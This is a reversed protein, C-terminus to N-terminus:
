QEDINSVWYKNWEQDYFYINWSDKIIKQVKFYSKELVKVRKKEIDYKVILDWSENELNYNKKRETDNESIVWLYQTSNLPIFDTFLAFYEVKKTVVDYLFTWKQTVFAYNKDNKKVYLIPQPFYIEEVKKLVVNYIYKQNPTIILVTDLTHYVPQIFIDKKEFFPFTYLNETVGSNQYWLTLTTDNNKTFYLYGLTEIDFLAYANELVDKMRLEAIQNQTTQEQQTDSVVIKEVQLQKDLQFQFEQTTKSELIIDQNWTKYGDKEITMSYTFPAIDILECTTKKCDSFFSTKLTQNYLRVTYNEVNWHLTLNSKNLVFFYYYLGYIWWFVCILILLSLLKNLM